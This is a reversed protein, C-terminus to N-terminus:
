EYITKINKDIQAIVSFLIKIFVWGTTKEARESLELSVYCDWFYTLLM